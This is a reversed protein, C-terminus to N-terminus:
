REVEKGEQELVLALEYAYEPDKKLNKRKKAHYILSEKYKNYAYALADLMFYVQMILLPGMNGQPKWDKNELFIKIAVTRPIIDTDKSLEDYKVPIVNRQGKMTSILIAQAGSLLRTILTANDEVVKAYNSNALDFYQEIIGFVNELFVFCLKGDYNIPKTYYKDLLKKWNNYVRMLTLYNEKGMLAVVKNIAPISTELIEIITRKEDNDLKESM